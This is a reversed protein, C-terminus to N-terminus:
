PALFSDIASITHSNGSFGDGVVVYYYRQGPTLPAGTYATSTSSTPTSVWIPVAQYDPYYSFLYVTYSTASFM